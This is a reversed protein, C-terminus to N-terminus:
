HPFCSFLSLSPLLLLPLSGCVLAITCSLTKQAFFCVHRSVVCSICGSMDLSKMRVFAFLHVYISPRVYLFVRIYPHCAAVCVRVFASSCACVCVYVLVTLSVCYSWCLHMMPSAFPRICACVLHRVGCTFSCM